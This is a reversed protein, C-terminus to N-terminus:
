ASLEGRLLQNLSILLHEYNLPLSDAGYKKAKIKLLRQRFLLSEEYYSQSEYCYAINDLYLDIEFLKDAQYQGQLDKILQVLNGVYALELKCERLNLETHQQFPVHQTDCGNESKHLKLALVSLGLIKHSKPKSERMWRTYIYYLQAVQKVVDEQFFYKLLQSDEVANLALLDEELKQLFAENRFSAIQQTRIRGIGRAFDVLPRTLQQYTYYKSLEIQEMEKKQSLYASVCTQIAAESLVPSQAEEKQAAVSGEGEPEPKPDQKSPAEEM